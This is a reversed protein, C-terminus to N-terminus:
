LRGEWERCWGEIVATSELHVSSGLADRAFAAKSKHLQKNAQWENWKKRIREKDAAKPSNSHRARAAKRAADILVEGRTLPTTQVKKEERFKISSHLATMATLAYRIARDTGSVAPLSAADLYGVAVALYMREIWDARAEFPIGFFLTADSLKNDGRISPLWIESVIDLHESLLSSGAGDDDFVYPALEKLERPMRAPEKWVANLYASIERWFQTSQRLLTDLGPGPRCAREAEGIAAAGAMDYNSIQAAAANEGLGLSKRFCEMVEGRYADDSVFRAGLHRAIAERRYEGNIEFRNLCLRFEVQRLNRFVDISLARISDGLPSKRLRARLRQLAVPYTQEVRNEAPLLVAGVRNYVYKGSIGTVM